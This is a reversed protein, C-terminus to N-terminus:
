GQTPFDGKAFLRDQAFLISPSLPIKNFLGAEGRAQRVM